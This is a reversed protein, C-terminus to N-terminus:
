GGVKEKHIQVLIRGLRKYGAKGYWKAVWEAMKDVAEDPYNSLDNEADTAANDMEQPNFEKAM